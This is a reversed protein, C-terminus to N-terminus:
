KLTQVDYGTGYKLNAHSIQRSIMGSSCIVSVDVMEARVITSEERIEVKMMEMKSM